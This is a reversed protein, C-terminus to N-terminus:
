VSGARASTGKPDGARLIAELTEFVRLKRLPVNFWGTTICYHTNFPSLHHIQHHSKRLILHIRQLVRAVAPPRAMHAWKHFQNTAFVFFSLFLVLGVMFLRLFQGPYVDVFLFACALLPASVLCNNGNTEIFDHRTIAEPDVHHERFPRIFAAGILPTDPSGFRDALWHVLGSVFDALVYGALAAAVIVWKAASGRSNVWLRLALGGSLAFMVGIGFTELGRRVWPYNNRTRTM